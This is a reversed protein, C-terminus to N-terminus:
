CRQTPGQMSGIPTTFQFIFKDFLDYVKPPLDYQWQFYQAVLRMTTGIPYTPNYESLYWPWTEKPRRSGGGPSCGFVAIKM